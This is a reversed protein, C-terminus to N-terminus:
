QCFLSISYAVHNDKRVKPLSQVYDSTLDLVKNTEEGNLQLYVDLFSEVSVCYVPFTEGKMSRYDALPYSGTFCM